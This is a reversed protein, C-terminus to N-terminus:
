LLGTLGKVTISAAGALAVVIVMRRAWAEPVTRALLGGAALGAVLGGLSAAWTAGPLAPWGLAFLSLVNLGMFYPQATAVFSRHRWGSSEAYLVLPPGALAATVNMFGSLLGAAAGGALGHFIRARESALVAALAACTLVGILVQLVPVPTVAAVWRGPLVGVMAPVFLLAAKRWEVDRWVQSLITASVGLNLVQLLAVGPGVGLILLLLPASVLAFGMGTLRQTAAGLAIIVGLAVVLWASV